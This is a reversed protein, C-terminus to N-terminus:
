KKIVFNYWTLNRQAETESEEVLVTCKNEQVLKLFNETHISQYLKGKERNSSEHTGRFSIILYGPNELLQLLRHFALKIDVPTLHMLVASCLINQFRSKAIRKLDPLEDQFFINEPYLALAQKLMQVSADVGITPFGQQTLWYTDRGIGCGVDLSTGSKIFYCNILEYLRHPILTTHLQAISEAEKNYAEITQKDM